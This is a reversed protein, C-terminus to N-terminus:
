KGYCTVESYESNGFHRFCFGSLYIYINIAVLVTTRNVYLRGYIAYIKCYYFYVALVMILIYKFTQEQHPTPPDTLPPDTLSILDAIPRCAQNEIKKVKKSLYSSTEFVPSDDHFNSYIGISSYQSNQQHVFVFLGLIM